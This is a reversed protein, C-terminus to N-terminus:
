VLLAILITIALMLIAISGVFQRGTIYRQRQAEHKCNASAVSAERAALADRAPADSTETRFPAGDQSMGANAAVAAYAARLRDLSSLLHLGLADAANREAHRPICLRLVPVAAGSAGSAVTDLKFVPYALLAARMAPDIMAAVIDPPAIDVTCTEDFGLVAFQSTNPMWGVGNMPTRDIHISLPYPPLDIELETWPVQRGHWAHPAYM